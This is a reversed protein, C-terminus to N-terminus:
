IEFNDMFDLFCGVFDIEFSISIYGLILFLFVKRRKVVLIYLVKIGVFIKVM